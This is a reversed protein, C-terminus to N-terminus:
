KLSRCDAKMETLREFARCGRGRPGLLHLALAVEIEEAGRVGAAGKLVLLGDIRVPLRQEVYLFPHDPRVTGDAPHRGALQRQAVVRSFDDAGEADRAVDGGALLVLLAQAFLRLDDVLRRDRDEDRVQLVADGVAVLARGLDVPQAALVNDAM